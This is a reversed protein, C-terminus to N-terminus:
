GFKVLAVLGDLRRVQMYAQNCANEFQRSIEMTTYAQTSTSTYEKM